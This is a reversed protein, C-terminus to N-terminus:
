PNVGPPLPQFEVKAMGSDAGAQAGQEIWLKILGLEAPTPSKANVKNDKPPMFPEASRSAFKLLPSEDPKGAVVAPGQVNGGKLISERTELSLGSEKKSASHCATCNRNLIQKVEGFGVPKDRKVAEIKIPEARLLNGCLASVALFTLSLSCIKMSM